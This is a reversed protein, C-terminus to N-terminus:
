GCRCGTRGASGEQDAGACSALAVAGLSVLAMSTLRARRSM